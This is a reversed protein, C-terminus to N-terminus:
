PPALGSDHRLCCEPDACPRLDAGDGARCHEPCRTMMITYAWIFAQVGSTPRHGHPCQDGAEAM